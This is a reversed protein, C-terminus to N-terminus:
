NTNEKPFDILFETGYCQTANPCQLSISIKEMSFKEMNTLASTVYKKNNRPKQRMFEGALTGVINEEVPALYCM